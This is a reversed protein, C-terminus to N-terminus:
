AATRRRRLKGFLRRAKAQNGPDKAARRASAITRKGQPSQSFEKIRNLMGAM